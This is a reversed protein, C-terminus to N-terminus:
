VTWLVRNERLITSVSCRGNRAAMKSEFHVSPTPVPNLRGGSGIHIQYEDGLLVRYTPSQLCNMFKGCEMCIVTNQWCVEQVAFCDYKEWFRNQLTGLVPRISIEARLVYATRRTDRELRVTRKWGLELGKRQSSAPAKAHMWACLKHSSLLYIGADGSRFVFM